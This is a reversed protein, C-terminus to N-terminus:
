KQTREFGKTNIGDIRFQKRVWAPHNSMINSINKTQSRGTINEKPDVCFLESSIERTSVRVRQVTGKHQYDNNMIEQIYLRKRENNYTEWDEPLPIELYQYISTKIPDESEADSRYDEALAEIEKSVFLDEGAQYFTYAEAWIQQVTDKDLTFVDKEPAQGIPIPFFRRNGTVDKLFEFDNSTGIFLCTRPIDVTIRGYSPRYRDTKSSLFAKVEDMETRKMASLESLEIIWSGKLFEKADKSKLNALDDRFHDGGLKQALTSKGAGQRGAIVPVIEFKVGPSYIRAVAGTLWKRAVTRMYLDNNAGLYDSFITEARPVGDWPNLEIMSKIPHYSSLEAVDQLVDLLTDKGYEMGWTEAIYVRMKSLDNDSLQKMFYRDWPAVAGKEIEGSFENYMFLDKLAPDNILIAKLNPITKFYYGNDSRKLASIWNTETGQVTPPLGEFFEIISANLRFYSLPDDLRQASKIETRIKQINNEIQEPNNNSLITVCTEAQVQTLEQAVVARTLVM